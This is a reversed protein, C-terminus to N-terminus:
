KLDMLEMKMENYLQDESGRVLKVFNIFGTLRLIFKQQEGRYGFHHFSAADLGNVRWDHLMARIRKLFRRDINVKKNVVLGTVTQQSYSSSLRFKKPNIQFHHKQILNTIDTITEKTITNDSSFTLDDAYRTYTLNNSKSFDSLDSDLAICIFNSIVPSTPAGTPLRGQFTTLLTLAISIQENFKFLDSSFMEKVRRATINPFFDKLDINLVFRKNIHQQANLAINCLGKQSNPNIVFGFINEPKVCLYYNQLYFNLTQQIAKLKQSPALIERVGGRRKPIKYCVYEPNNIIQILEGFKVKSRFRNLVKCLEVPKKVVLLSLSASEHEQINEILGHINHIDNLFCEDTKQVVSLITKFSYM